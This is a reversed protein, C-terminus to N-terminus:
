SLTIECNTLKIVIPEHNIECDIMFKLRCDSKDATLAVLLDLSSSQLYPEPM